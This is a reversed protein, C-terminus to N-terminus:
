ISKKMKVLEKEINRIIKRALHWNANNYCSEFDDLWKKIGKVFDGVDDIVVPAENVLHKDIKEQIGM